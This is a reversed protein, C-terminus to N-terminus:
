AARSIEKEKITEVKIEKQESREDTRWFFVVDFVTKDPSVVQCAAARFAKPYDFREM